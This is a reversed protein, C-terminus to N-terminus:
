WANDCTRALFNTSEAGIRLSRSRLDRNTPTRTTIGCLSSPSAPLACVIYSTVHTSRLSAATRENGPVICRELFAVHVTLRVAAKSGPVYDQEKGKADASSVHRPCRRQGPLRKRRAGM